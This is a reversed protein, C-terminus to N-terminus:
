CWQLVYPRGRARFHGVNICETAGIRV